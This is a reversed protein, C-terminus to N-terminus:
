KIPRGIMVIKKDGGYDEIYDHESVFSGDAEVIVGYVESHAADLKYVKYGAFMAVHYINKYRGNTISNRTYFILDGPRLKREKVSMAGDAIVRKNDACWKAQDAATPAWNGNGFTVGNSCYSRWVLSSCDYYGTQMRKEQSYVAGIVAQAKQVAQKARKDVVSVYCRLTVGNVKAKITTNGNKKTKLVGKSSISAVKNNTISWQVKEKTGTVKLEKSTGKTLTLSEQKLLYQRLKVKCTLRKGYVEVTVVATGAKKGKLYIRGYSEYVELLDPKDAFCQIEASGSMNGLGEVLLEASVEQNLLLDVKDSSLKPDVVTVNCTFTYLEGNNGLVEVQIVAEGASVASLEGSTNITCIEPNFSVYSTATGNNVRISKSEEGKVMVISSEELEVEPYFYWDGQNHSDDMPDDPGKYDGAKEDSIDSAYIRQMKQVGVAKAFVAGEGGLPFIMGMSLLVALSRIRNERKIGNLKKM